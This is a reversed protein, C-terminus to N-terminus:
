LDIERGPELPRQPIAHDGVLPSRRLAQLIAGREQAKGVLERRTVERLREAGPGDQCLRDAFLRILERDTERGIIEFRTM